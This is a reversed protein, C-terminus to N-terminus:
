ERRLIPGGFDDDEVAPPRTRNRTNQPPQPMQPPQQAQDPQPRGPAPMSSAPPPASPGIPEVHANFAERFQGAREGLVPEVTQDLAAAAQLTASRIAGLIEQQLATHSRRMAQPSLQLGLVAGSPAVTVTVSGDANRAHGRLNAIQKKLEAARAAQEQFRQLVADLRAAQDPM